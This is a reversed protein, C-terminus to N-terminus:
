DPGYPTLIKHVRSIRVEVEMDVDGEVEQAVEGVGDSSVSANDKPAVMMAQALCGLKLCGDLNLYIQVNFRRCRPNISTILSLAMFYDGHLTKRLSPIRQRSVPMQRSVPIQRRFGRICRHRVQSFSRAKRRGFASASVKRVKEADLAKIVINRDHCVAVAGLLEQLLSRVLTGPLVM